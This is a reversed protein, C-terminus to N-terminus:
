IREVKWQRSSPRKTYYMIDFLKDNFDRRFVEAEDFMRDAQKAKYVAYDILIDQFKFPISPEDIDTLMEVPEKVYYLYLTKGAPNFTLNVTDEWIYFYYAGEVNETIAREMGIKFLKDDDIKMLLMDMYDDPLKYQQLNDETIIFASEQLLRSKKVVLRQGENIWNNIEENKYYGQEDFERLMERVKERIERLNM